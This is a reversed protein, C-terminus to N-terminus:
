NEHLAQIQFKRYSLCLKQRKTDYPIKLVVEPKDKLILWIKKSESEPAKDDALNRNSKSLDLNDDGEEATSYSDDAAKSISVEDRLYFM